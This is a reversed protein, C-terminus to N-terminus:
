SYGPGCKADGDIEVRECHSWGGINWQCESDDSCQAVLDAAGTRYRSGFAPVHWVTGVVPEVAVQSVFCLATGALDVGQLTRTGFAYLWLAQLGGRM